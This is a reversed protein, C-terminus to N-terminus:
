SGLIQYTKLKILNDEILANILTSKGYNGSGVIFLLFPHLLEVLNELSVEIEYRIDNLMKYTRNVDSEIISIEINEIISILNELISSFKLFEKERSVFSM